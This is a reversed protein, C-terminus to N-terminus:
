YRLTKYVRFAADEAEERTTFGRTIPPLQGRLRSGWMWYGWEKDFIPNGNEDQAYDNRITAYVGETDDGAETPSVLITDSTEAVMPITYVNRLGDINRM